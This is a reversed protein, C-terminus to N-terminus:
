LSSPPLPTPPFATRPSSFRGGTFNQPPEEDTVRNQTSPITALCSHLYPIVFTPDIQGTSARSPRDMALHRTGAATFDGALSSPVISSPSTHATSPACHRLNAILSYLPAPPEGSLLFAAAILKIRDQPPPSTTASAPTLFSPARATRKIPARPSSPLLPPSCRRAQWSPSSPVYHRRSSEPLRSHLFPELVTCPPALCWVSSTLANITLRRPPRHGATFV